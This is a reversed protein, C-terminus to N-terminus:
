VYLAGIAADLPSSRRPWYSGHTPRTLTGTLM